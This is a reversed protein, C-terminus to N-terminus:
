GRKGWPSAGARQGNRHSIVLRATLLLAAAAIGAAVPWWPAAGGAGTNPLERPVARLIFPDPVISITTADEVNVQRVVSWSTKDLVYVRNQAAVSLYAYGDDAGVGTAADPTPLASRTALRQGAVDLVTLQNPAAGSVLVQRGDPTFAIDTAGPGIPVSNVVSDNRPDVIEVSGANPRLVFLWGGDPSLALRTAGPGVAVQTVEASSPDIAPMTPSDPVAVYVRRDDASVAVAEGPGPLSIERKRAQGVVELVNLTASARDTFYVREGTPAVVVFNPSGGTPIRAVVEYRDRDIQALHGASSAAVFVTFTDPSFGVGRAGEGVDLTAVVTHSTREFITVRGAAPSTVFITGIGNASVPTPVLTAALTVLGLLLRRTINRM